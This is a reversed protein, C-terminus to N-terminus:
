KNNIRNTLNFDITCNPCTFSKTSRESDNLELETNCEICNIVKPLEPVEILQEKYFKNGIIFFITFYGALTIIEIISSATTNLQLEFILLSIVGSILGVITLIPFIFLFMMGLIRARWGLIIKNKALNFKGRILSYAGWLTFILEIFLIM